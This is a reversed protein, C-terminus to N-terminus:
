HVGIKKIKRFSNCEFVYDTILSMDDWCTQYYIRKYSDVAHFMYGKNGHLILREEIFKLVTEDKNYDFKEGSDNKRELYGQMILKILKEKKAMM